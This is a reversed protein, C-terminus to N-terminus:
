NVSDLTSVAESLMKGEIGDRSLIKTLSAVDLILAVRGDGLITAGAIGEIDGMYKGMSKVVIEQPEMLSDVMIGVMAEEAKAIVVLSNISKREQAKDKFGFVDNLRVVPIINDLRRIVKKKLITYIEGPQIALAEIVSALPLVYITGGVTVLLGQVIAVTLPLRITFKSGQGQKTELVVSGGLNEVNARVIDLGVGRGSVETAKEATSLGAKFILNIAETETLTEAKEATIFGKRIAAQKVKEVSIGSGDDQVTIVIHSQEREATLSITATEAKGAAKRKEPLEIGHDVANRLLHILPDRVQEILSRDLETEEGSVKFNIKKKQTQALDRVMRPFRSFIAEIPVMRVQMIREQLENIVKIIHDSTQSLQQVMEDGTYKMGLIKGIQTINSRDIVLEEVINMLSDLVRVDVKVSQFSQASEQAPIKAKAPTNKASVDKGANVSSNEGAPGAEPDVDAEPEYDSIRVGEIETILTVVGKVTGEDESTALLFKIHHGVKEEDIEAETPASCVIQGIHELEKVCQLCRVAAWESGERITIDLNFLHRGGAMAAQLRTRADEDLNLGNEAAPKVTEQKAEAAKNLMAVLPKIDLDSETLSTIEGKLTRIADLGNLLADIITPNILLTGSRIKDLLSEMAHTLEAMRQHGVMASSGKLTHAARFIEQILESNNGEKELKVIDEDLLEIQEDAEQLFVKMEEPSIDSNLNM